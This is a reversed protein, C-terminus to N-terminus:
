WLFYPCWGFSKPLDLTSVSTPVNSNVKSLDTYPNNFGEGWKVQTREYTQNHFSKKNNNNNSTVKWRAFKSPTLRKAFIQQEPRGLMNCRGVRRFLSLSLSRQNVASAPQLSFTNTFIFSNTAVSHYIWYFFYFYHKLKLNHFSRLKCTRM